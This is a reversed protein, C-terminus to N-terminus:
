LLDCSPVGIWYFRPGSLSLCLCWWRLMCLPIAGSMKPLLHGDALWSSLALPSTLFRVSWAPGQVQVEQRCFQSFLTQQQGWGTANQLPLRPLSIWAGVRGAAPVSPFSQVKRHSTSGLHLGPALCSSM